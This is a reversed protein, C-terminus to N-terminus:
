SNTRQTEDILQAYLQAYQQAIATPAFRLASARCAEPQYATAETFHQWIAIAMEQPKDHAVLTGNVGEIVIDAPGGSDRAIVPTGCALAELLTQGFSERESTSILVSSEAYLSSLREADSISGLHQVPIPIQKLLTRDSLAGVLTLQMQARQEGALEALQRM